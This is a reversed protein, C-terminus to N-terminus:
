EKIKREGGATRSNTRHMSMSSEKQQALFADALYEGIQKQCGSDPDVGEPLVIAPGFLRQWGSPLHPSPSSSCSPKGQGRGGVEGAGAQVPRVPSPLVRPLDCLRGMKEEHLPSPSNEDSSTVSASPVATKMGTGERQQGSFSPKETEVCQKQQFWDNASGGPPQQHAAFSLGRSLAFTDELSLSSQHSVGGNVVNEPNEIILSSLSSKQHKEVKGKAHVGKQKEPGDKQKQQKSLHEEPARSTTRSIFTSASGPGDVSDVTDTPSTSSSPVHKLSSPDVPSGKGNVGQVWTEERGEEQEDGEEEERGAASSLRSLLAPNTGALKDRGEQLEDTSHAYKCEEGRKCAIGKTVSFCLNTRELNPKDRLETDTHAFRCVRGMRCRGVLYHRCISTKELFAYKVERSANPTSTTGKQQHAM